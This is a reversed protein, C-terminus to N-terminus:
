RWKIWSHKSALTFAHDQCHRRALLRLKSCACSLLSLDLYELDKSIQTEKHTEEMKSIKDVDTPETPSFPVAAPLVHTTPSKADDVVLETTCTTEDASETDFELLNDQDCLDKMIQREETRAPLTSFLDKVGKNNKRAPFFTLDFKAHTAVVVTGYGRGGEPFVYVLFGQMGFPFAKGLYIGDLGRPDLKNAKRAAYGKLV